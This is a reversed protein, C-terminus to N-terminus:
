TVPAPMEIIKGEVTNAYYHRPAQTLVVYINAAILVFMIFVSGILWRLMKRFQKRYFVSQLSAIEHRRGLM